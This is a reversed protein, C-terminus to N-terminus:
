RDSRLCTPSTSMTFTALPPRAELSEKVDDSTYTPLKVIDDLSRIDGPILGAANWRRRYFPNKWGVGVISLFRQEQLARIREPSWRWVTKEFVDPLPFERILQEFDFAHRYIPLQTAPRSDLSPLTM